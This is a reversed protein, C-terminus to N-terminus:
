RAVAPVALVSRPMPLTPGSRSMSMRTTPSILGSMTMTPGPGPGRRRRPRAARPARDPQGDAARRRDEGAARGAEAQADREDPDHAVVREPPEHELRQGARPISTDAQVTSGARGVPAVTMRVLPRRGPSGSPSPCSRPARRRRPAPRAARGPAGGGSSSSRGGPSSGPAAARREERRRPRAAQRRREVRVPVRAPAPVAPDRVHEARAVHEQGVLGLRAPDRPPVVDLLRGPLQGPDAGRSRGPPPGITTTLRPAFPASATPRPHARREPDRRQRDARDVRGAGAIGEIGPEQPGPEVARGSASASRRPATQPASDVSRRPRPRRGASTRRPSARRQRPQPPPHRRDVAATRRRRAAAGTRRPSGTSRGARDLDVGQRDTGDMPRVRHHRHGAALAEVGRARRDRQPGPGRGHRDDRPRAPSHIASRSASVRRRRRARERRRAAGLGPGAQGDQVARGAPEGLEVFRPRRDPRAGPGREFLRHRRLERATVDARDDARAAQRGPRRLVTVGPDHPEARTSSRRDDVRM